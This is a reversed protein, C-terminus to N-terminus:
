LNTKKKLELTKQNSPLMQRNISDYDVAGKHIGVAYYALLPIFRDPFETEFATMQDLYAQIQATSYYGM